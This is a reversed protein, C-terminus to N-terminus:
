KKVEKICMKVCDHYFYICKTYKYEKLIIHINFFFCVYLILFNLVLWSKMKERIRDARTLLCTM